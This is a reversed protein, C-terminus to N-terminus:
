LCFGLPEELPLAHWYTILYIVLKENNGEARYRMILRFNSLIIDFQLLLTEPTKPFYEM